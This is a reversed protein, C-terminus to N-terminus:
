IYIKFLSEIIKMFKTKQIITTPQQFYHLLIVLIILALIENKVKLKLKLKNIM